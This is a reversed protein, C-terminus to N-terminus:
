NPMTFIKRNCVYFKNAVKCAIEKKGMFREKRRRM